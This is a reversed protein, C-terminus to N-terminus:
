REAADALFKHIVVLAYAVPGRVIFGEPGSPPVHIANNGTIISTVRSTMTQLIKCCIVMLQAHKFYYDGIRM